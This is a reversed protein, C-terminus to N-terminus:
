LKYQRKEEAEAILRREEERKMEERRLQLSELVSRKEEEFRQQEEKRRREEEKRAEEMRQSEKRREEEAFKREEELKRKAEEIEKQQSELKRQQEEEAKRFNAEIRQKVEEIAKMEEELIRKAEEIKKQQERRIREREKRKEEEQQHRKAEELFEEQERRQREENIRILHEMELARKREEEEEEEDDHKKKEQEGPQRHMAEQLTPINHRPKLPPTDTPVYSAYRAHAENLSPVDSSPFFSTQTQKLTSPPHSVAKGALSPDLSPLSSTSSTPLKPSDPLHRGPTLKAISPPSQLGVHSSRTPTPKFSPINSAIASLQQKTTGTPHFSPIKPISLTNTPTFTPITPQQSDTNSSGQHRATTELTSDASSPLTLVLDRNTIEMKIGTLNPQSALNILHKVQETSLPETSNGEGRRLPPDNSPTRTPSNKKRTPRREQSRSRRSDSSDPSTERNPRQNPSIDTKTPKFPTPQQNQMVQALNTNSVRNVELQRAPNRLNDIFPPSSPNMALVDPPTASFPDSQLNTSPVRQHLPPNMFQSPPISSGANGYAFPDGYSQHFLAIAPSPSPDTSPFPSTNFPMRENLHGGFSQPHVPPKDPIFLPFSTM